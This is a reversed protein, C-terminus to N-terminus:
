KKDVNTVTPSGVNFTVFDFDAADVQKISEHWERSPFARLSHAGPALNKFKDPSFPASPNYDAEYPENDLIVHIHQGKKRAPDQYIPYGTITFTPAVAQDSAASGEAPATFKLSVNGTPGAKYNGPAEPVPVADAPLGAPQAAAPANSNTTNSRDHMHECSTAVFALAFLCLAAVAPQSFRSRM